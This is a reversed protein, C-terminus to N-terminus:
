LLTCREKVGRILGDPYRKSVLTLELATVATAENELMDVAVSFVFQSSCSTKGIIM